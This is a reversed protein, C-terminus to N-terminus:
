LLMQVARLVHYRGLVTGALFDYRGVSGEQGRVIVRRRALRDDVGRQLHEFVAAGEGLQLRQGTTRGGGFPGVIRGQPRVRRRLLAVASVEARPRRFRSRPTADVLVDVDLVLLEAHVPDLAVLNDIERGFNLVKRRGLETLHVDLLTELLRRTRHKSLANLLPHRPSSPRRPHHV